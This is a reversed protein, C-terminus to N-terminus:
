ESESKQMDEVNRKNGKAVKLVIAVIVPLM